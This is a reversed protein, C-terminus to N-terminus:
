VFIIFYHAIEFLELISRTYSLALYSYALHCHKSLAGLGTTSSYAKELVM